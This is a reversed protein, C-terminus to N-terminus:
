GRKDGKWVAWECNYYQMGGEGEEHVPCVCSLPCAGAVLRAVDFLLCVTASVLLPFIAM